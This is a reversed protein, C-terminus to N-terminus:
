EKYLLLFIVLVFTCDISQLINAWKRQRSDVSADHIILNFQLPDTQVHFTLEHEARVLPMAASGAEGPGWPQVGPGHPLGLGALGMCYQTQLLGM